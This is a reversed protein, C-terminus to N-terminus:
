RRGSPTKAPPAYQSVDITLANDGEKAVTMKYPSMSFEALEIPVERPLADFRRAQEANYREQEMPALAQWESLSLEREFNPAKAVTVIYEGVPVGKGQWNLRKTFIVAIGSSDTVGSMALSTSENALGMIVDANAVPAAGNMVTVRCPYLEPVDAPKTGCGFFVLVILFFLYKRM